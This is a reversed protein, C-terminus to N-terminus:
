YDPDIMGRQGAQAKPYWQVRNDGFLCNAGGSHRDGIREPTSWYHGGYSHGQASWEQMDGTMIVNTAKEMRVPAGSDTWVHINAFYSCRLPDALTTRHIPCHLTDYFNQVNGSAGVIYNRAWSYTEFWYYNEPLIKYPWLIGDNDNAYLQLALGIQKLNNMCKVQKARERTKSLAPLLLAALISIIAIVVLLEVLTFARRLLSRDSSEQALLRPPVTKVAPKWKRSVVYQILDRAALAGVRRPETMVTTLGKTSLAATEAGQVALVCVDRPVKVGAERLAELGGCAAPKSWFFLADPLKGRRIMGRTLTRGHEVAAECDMVTIKGPWSERAFADMVAEARSGTAYGVATVSDCGQQILHRTVERLATERNYSYWSVRDKWECKWPLSGVVALGCRKRLLTRVAAEIQPIGLLAVAEDDEISDLIRLDLRNSAGPDCPVAHLPLRAIALKETMGAIIESAQHWYANRRAEMAWNGPFLLTIWRPPNLAPKSRVFTGAGRQRVILGRSSLCSLAQRATLPAVRFRKAVQNDSAFRSGVSVDPSAIERELIECINEYKSTPM